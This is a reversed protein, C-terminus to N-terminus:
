SASLYRSMHDLSEAVSNDLMAVFAAMLEPDRWGRTTESRTIELAEATTFAPTYPRASTLANIIDSLQLSFLNEFIFKVLPRLEIYLVRM